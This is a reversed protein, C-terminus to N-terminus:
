YRRDNAQHIRSSGFELIPLYDNRCSNQRQRDIVSKRCSCAVNQSHVDKCKEACKEQVLSIYTKPLHSNNSTGYENREQSRLREHKFEPVHSQLVKRELLVLGILDEDVVVHGDNSAYCLHKRVLVAIQAQLNGEIRQDMRNRARYPRSFRIAEAHRDLGDRAGI